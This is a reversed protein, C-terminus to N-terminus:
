QVKKIVLEVQGYVTLESLPYDRIVVGDKDTSLAVTGDYNRTARSFFFSGDSRQFMTLKGEHLVDSRILVVTDGDCIMPSFNDTNVFFMATKEKEILGILDRIQPTGDMQEKIRLLRKELDTQAQLLNNRDIDTHSDTDGDYMAILLMVARYSWTLIHERQKTSLTEWAKIHKWAKLIHGVSRGGKIYQSFNDVARLLIGIDPFLNRSERNSYMSRFFQDRVEDQTTFFYTMDESQLTLVKQTTRTTKRTTMQKHGRM